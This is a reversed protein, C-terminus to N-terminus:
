QVANAMQMLTIDSAKRGVLAYVREGDSWLLQTVGEQKVGAEDKRDAIAIM